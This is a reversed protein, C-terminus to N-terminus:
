ARRLRLSNTLVSVSSFSMAAAAVMPNLLWGTFPYLVGAAVPIGLVNYFFAWFLNQRIVRLTRRSLHIAEAVGNLDNRMLTIDAAEIAVDTGSGVAIGVDSQALAPADNIGDGVMAVVRGGDQLAKVAAAKRDPLVGAMIRDIGGGPSVQRAIAEATALNDGTMMVVELGMAKMRAIAQRSEARPTDAMGVLGLAALGASGLGVGPSAAVIMVTRAASALAAIENQMPGLDVGRERMLLENGIAVRREGLRGVIGRGPVAQFDQAAGLTLNRARAARVIAAALPHESLHESSAALALLEEETTGPATVLDTVEPRGITITGTKDLVVTTIQGARELIEGGRILIGKEAGKGTGVLIATPTALGMACPCAIIM